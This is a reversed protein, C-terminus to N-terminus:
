VWAGAVRKRIVPVASSNIWLAGDPVTTGPTAPDTPGWYLPVTTPDVGLIVVGGPAVVEFFNQTVQGNAAARLTYSTYSIGPNGKASM